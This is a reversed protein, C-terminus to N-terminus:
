HWLSALSKLLRIVGDGLASTTMGSFFGDKVPEEEVRAPDQRQARRRATIFYLVGLVAAAGLWSGIFTPTLTDAVLGV